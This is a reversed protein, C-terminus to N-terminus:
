KSPSETNGRSQCVIRDVVEIVELRKEALTGVRDWRIALHNALTIIEKLADAKTEEPIIEELVEVSALPMITLEKFRETVM